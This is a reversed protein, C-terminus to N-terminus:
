SGKGSRALLGTLGVTGVVAGGVLMWVAKDTPAGTFFQSIDSSASNLAGIGFALLVMGGAFMAIFITRNM